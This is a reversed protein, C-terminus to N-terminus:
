LVTAASWVLERERESIFGLSTVKEGVNENEHWEKKM